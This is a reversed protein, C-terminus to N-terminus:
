KEKVLRIRHIPLGQDRFGQEFDTQPYDDAVEWNVAQLRPERSIVNQMWQFYGDHDTSIRLEGGPKLLQHVSTLFAPNIVRREFHRRKPWPDPFAVHVVDASEPPLLYQITYSSELRLVRVNALGQRYSKRCVARVRGLLREIGFFNQEPHRHAMEMLFAGDGCGVDVQLPAERGFLPLLDLRRTYDEPIVQLPSSGSKAM